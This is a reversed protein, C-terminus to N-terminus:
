ESPLQRSRRATSLWFHDIFETLNNKPQLSSVGRSPPCNHMYKIYFYTKHFYRVLFRPPPKSFNMWFDWKCKKVAAQHCFFHNFFQNYYSICFSLMRLRRRRIKMKMKRKRGKRLREKKVEPRSRKSKRLRGRVGFSFPLFFGQEEKTKRRKTWKNWRKRIHTCHTVSTSTREHRKRVCRCGM